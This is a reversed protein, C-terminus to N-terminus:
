PVLPKLYSDLEWSFNFHRYYESDLTRVFYILPLLKIASVVGALTYRMLKPHVIMSGIIILLIRTLWLPLQCINTNKLSVYINNRITLYKRLPTPYGKTTKTAVGVSYTAWIFPFYYFEYGLKKARTAIDLEEIYNFLLNDFKLKKIMDTTLLVCGGWFCDMECIKDKLQWGITRKFPNLLLNLISLAPNHVNSVMLHPKYPPHYDLVKPTAGGFKRDIREAALIMKELFDPPVVTSVNLLMVYKTKLKQIIRNWITVPGINRKFLLVSLRCDKFKSIIQPSEDNSGSDAFYLDFNRITQNLLSRINPEIFEAANYNVVIVSVKKSSTTNTCDPM